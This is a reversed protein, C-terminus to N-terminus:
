MEQELLDVSRQDLATWDPIDYKVGHVDTMVVRRGKLRRIDNRDRVYVTKLGRDTELEWTTMGHMSTVARVGLVQPTFYAMELEEDLVRRSTEDLEDADEIVGVECGEQDHLSIHRTPATLPFARVAKLGELSKVDSESSEGDGELHIALKGFQDRSLHLRRPDLMKDGDSQM